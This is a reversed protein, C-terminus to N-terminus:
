ESKDSNEVKNKEKGKEQQLQKLKKAKGATEAVEKHLLEKETVDMQQYQNMDISDHEEDDELDFQGLRQIGFGLGAEHRKLLETITYSDDPVTLSIGKPSEQEKANPVYGIKSRLRYQTKQSTSTSKM